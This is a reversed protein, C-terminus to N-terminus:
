HVEWEEAPRVILTLGDISEVVVVRGAALPALEQEVEWVRARWLAGDLLVQGIPALPTRVTALRGTLAPAGSRVALRHAALSKVILTWVMATGVLAVVMGAAVVTAPGAGTGVLALVVGGTLAAAAATGLVGQTPVHAEVVMLTAGVLALVIGLLLM